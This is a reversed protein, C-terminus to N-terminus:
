PRLQSEREIKQYLDLGTIGLRNAILRINRNLVDDTPQLAQKVSGTTWGEEEEWASLWDDLILGQGHLVKSLTDLLNPQDDFQLNYVSPASTM